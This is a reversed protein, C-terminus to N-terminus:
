ANDVAANVEEISSAREALYHRKAKDVIRWANVYTNARKELKLFTVAGTALAGIFSIVTAAAPSYTYIQPSALVSAIGVLGIVTHWNETGRHIRMWEDVRTEIGLGQLEKEKAAIIDAPQTVTKEVPKKPM